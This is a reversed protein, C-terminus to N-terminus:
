KEIEKSEFGFDLLKPMFKRSSEIIDSKNNPFPM